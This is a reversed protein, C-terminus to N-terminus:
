VGLPTAAVGRYNKGRYTKGPNKKVSRRWCLHPSSDKSESELRVQTGIKNPSPSSDWVNPSPSSELCAPSPSSESKTISTMLVKFSNQFNSHDIVDHM